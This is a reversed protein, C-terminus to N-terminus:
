PCAAAAAIEGDRPGAVFEMIHEDYSGVGGPCGRGRVLYWTGGAATPTPDDATTGALDNAVCAQTASTFDGVSSRLTALSGRVVDYASACALSGWQLRATSTSVRGATLLPAFACGATCQYTATYTTASPPANVTHEAAGGDSWSVFAWASAGLAQPSPATITRPFNVVSPISQPAPGPVQDIALQLAAGAPTAAVTITTLNPVIDVHSEETLKGVSGLPAGSDTVNLILQYYVDVAEEGSAPITFSGSTTGVNPGLFPHTHSGHHFVVTWSYASSPLAGDEPDTATGAFAITDGANYHAGAV